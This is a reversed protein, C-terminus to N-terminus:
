PLEAAPKPKPPELVYGLDAGQEFEGAGDVGDPGVSWLTVKAGDRRYKVQTRVAEFIDDPIEPLFEPMLPLLTEPYSGNQRRYLELAIVTKLMANKVAVRDAASVIQAMAPMVLRCLFSQDVCDDLQSPTPETAAATPEPEFFGNRGSQPTRERRPKDVQGLVNRIAHSMVRDCLEPEGMTYLGLRGLGAIPSDIGFGPLEEMITQSRIAGRMYLYEIQLTASIPPGRRLEEDIEQRAQLLMKTTVSPDQAWKAISASISASLAMGVFREIAVGRRGLHQSARLGTRLLEWAQDPHGEARLRLAELRVLRELTRSEQVVPLLTDIRFEGARIYQSDPKATGQKWLEIAPRNDSVWKRISEPVDAWEGALAEELFETETSALVVLRATAQRYEVFANQDDHVVFDLVAQTDFPEPALPVKSLKYGRFVTPGALILVVLFLPIAVKPQLWWALWRGRPQHSDSSTEAAASSSFDSTM